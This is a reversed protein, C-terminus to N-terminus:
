SSSYSSALSVGCTETRFGVPNSLLGGSLDSPHADRHVGALDPFMAATKVRGGRGRENEADTPRCRSVARMGRVCVLQRDGEVGETEEAVATRRTRCTSQSCSLVWQGRGAPSV